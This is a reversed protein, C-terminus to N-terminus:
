GRDVVVSQQFVVNREWKISMGFNDELIHTNFLRLRQGFGACGAGTINQASLTEERLDFRWDNRTVLILRPNLERTKWM